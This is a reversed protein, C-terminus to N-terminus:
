QTLSLGIYPHVGLASELRAYNELVKLRLCLWRTEYEVSLSSREQNTWGRTGRLLREQNAQM